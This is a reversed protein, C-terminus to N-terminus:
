SIQIQQEMEQILDKRKNKDRLIQELEKRFTRTDMLISGLDRILNRCALLRGLEPVQEVIHEPSFDRISQFRLSVPINDSMNNLVNKVPFDLKLDLSKMVSDLNERDVKVKEREVVRHQLNETRFRGLILVKFPIEIKEAEGKGLVSLRINVRAPPIENQFSTAM